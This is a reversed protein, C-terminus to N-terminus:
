DVNTKNYDSINLSPDTDNCVPYNFACYKPQKLVGETKFTTLLDLLFSQQNHFIALMDAHEAITGDYDTVLTHYKM